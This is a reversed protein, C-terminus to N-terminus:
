TPTPYHIATPLFHNTIPLLYSTVYFCFCMWV